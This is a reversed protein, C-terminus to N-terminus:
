KQLYEKDQIRYQTDTDKDHPITDFYYLVFEYLCTQQDISVHLEYSAGHHPHKSYLEEVEIDPQYLDMVRPSVGREELCIVQEKTCSIFSTAFYRETASLPFLRWGDGGSSLVTWSRFWAPDFDDEHRNGSSLVSQHTELEGSGNQLINSGFSLTQYRSYHKALLFYLRWDLKDNSVLSQPLSLGDFSIKRIWFQTSLILDYWGRCVSSLSPLSQASLRLLINEIIDEPIDVIEVAM